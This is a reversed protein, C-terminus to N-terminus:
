KQFLQRVIGGFAIKGYSNRFVMENISPLRAIVMREADWSKGQLQFVLPWRSQKRGEIEMLTKIGNKQQSSGETKM